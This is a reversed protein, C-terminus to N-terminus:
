SRRISLGGVRYCFGLALLERFLAALMFARELLLVVLTYASLVVQFRCIEVSRSVVSLCLLRGGFV